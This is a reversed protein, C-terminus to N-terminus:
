RSADAWGGSRGSVPLSPHREFGPSAATLCHEFIKVMEPDLQTGALSVIERYAESPELRKRYPRDTTMADFADVVGMIRSGLPIQDGSLGDPYGQGDFREHHHRVMRAIAEMGEIESLIEYGIM